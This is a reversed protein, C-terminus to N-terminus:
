ECNSIFSNVIDKFHDIDAESAFKEFRVSSSNNDVGSLSTFAREFEKYDKMDWGLADADPNDKLAMQAPWIKLKKNVTATFVSTTGPYESSHADVRVKFNANKTGGIYINDGIENAFEYLTVFVEYTRESIEENELKRDIDSFLEAESEVYEPGTRSM